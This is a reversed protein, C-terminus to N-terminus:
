KSFKFTKEILINFDALVDPYTPEQVYTAVYTKGKTFFVYRVIKTGDPWGGVMVEAEMGSITASLKNGAVGGVTVSEEDSGTYYAGTFKYDGRVDGATSSIQIQGGYETACVGVSEKTPAILITSEHCTEPSSAKVWTVPHKFSFEGAVNSYAVWDATPDAVAEKKKETTTQTTQTLSTDTAPQKDANQKWIYWGAFAIIGLVLLVLVLLAPHAFGRTKRPVKKM